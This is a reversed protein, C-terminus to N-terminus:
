LWGEKEYWARTRKLGELLPTKAQWGFGEVSSTDSVWHKSRLEKVKDPNLMSTQGRFGAVLHALHAAGTLLPGPVSLPRLRKDGMAQAITERLVADTYPLGDAPEFLSMGSKEKELMTVIFDACDPGYLMSVHANAPVIAPFYGRRAIKLLGLLGRDRPGYLAPPRVILAGSGTEEAYAELAQEGALKSHGYHSVPKPPADAPEPRPTPSPGKAALSSVYVVREPTQRKCVELLRKTGAANVAHYGPADRAAITGAGHVVADSDQVLRELARPDDMSGPLQAVGLADLHRRDSTPRVLCIPEHGRGLLTETLHAGLFGTGGTVAVRM